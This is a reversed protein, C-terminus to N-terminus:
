CTMVQTSTGNGRADCFCDDVRACHPALTCCSTRTGVANIHAHAFPTPNQPGLSVLVRGGEHLSRIVCEAGELSYLLRTIPDWRVAWTYGTYHGPNNAWTREDEPVITSRYLLSRACDAANGCLLLAAMLLIIISVSQQNNLM